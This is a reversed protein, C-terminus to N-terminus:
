EAQTKREISTDSQVCKANRFRKSVGDPGDGYFTTIAGAGAPRVGWRLLSRFVPFGFVSAIWGQERIFRVSFKSVVEM